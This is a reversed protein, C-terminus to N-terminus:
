GILKFSGCGMGASKKGNHRGEGIGVQAGVRVMLNTVDEASFMDGDWIIQVTASWPWFRARARLDVVGSANRVHGIHMEPKGKIRILPALDESDFGDGQVFLALKAHTMKFDVCRCADIMANRFAVAPIGNWGEVSIRQANIFDQKFNKPERKGGKKSQSGKEMTKKLIEITANSFKLQMYPSTGEIKFIGRQENLPKITVKTVKTDKKTAM